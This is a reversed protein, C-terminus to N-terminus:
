PVNLGGARRQVAAQNRSAAENVLEAAFRDLAKRVDVRQAPTLDTRDNKAYVTVM